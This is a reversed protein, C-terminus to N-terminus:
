LFLASKNNLLNATVTLKNESYVREQLYREEMPDGEAIGSGGEDGVARNSGEGGDGVARDSGGGGDGVARDSGGGGDGVTGDAGYGVTGNAGGGGDEM